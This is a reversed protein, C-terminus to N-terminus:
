RKTLVIEELEESDIFEDIDPVECIRFRKRLMQFVEKSNRLFSSQESLEDYDYEDIYEFMNKAFLYKYTSIFLLINDSNPSVRCGRKKRKTFKIYEACVAGDIRGVSWSDCDIYYPNLYSDLIINGFHMDGVCLKAPHEHILRLTRSCFGVINLFQRSNDSLYNFEELSHANFVYPMSYGIFCDDKDYIPNTPMVVNPLDIKRLIAVKKERDKMLQIYQKIFYPSQVVSPKYIKYAVGDKYHIYAETTNRSIIPYDKIEM